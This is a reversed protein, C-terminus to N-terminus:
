LGWPEEPTPPREAAAAEMEEPPRRPPPHPARRPGRWGGEGQAAEAAQGEGQQPAGVRAGEGSGPEKAARPQRTGEGRGKEVGYVSLYADTLVAPRIPPQAIRQNPPRSGWDNQMKTLMRRFYDHLERKRIDQAAWRRQLFRSWVRNLLGPPYQRWLANRIVTAVAEKFGAMHSCVEQAFVLRGYIVGGLQARPTTSSWEPYRTIHHPYEAERDYVSTVIKGERRTVRVGIFTVDDDKSSTQRYEMGYEKEPPPDRGALFMDDIFRLAMGKQPSAVSHRREVTYCALNALQPAQSLGMPMGQKQRRVLSGNVTYCHSISYRLFAEVQLMTWGDEWCWGETTLCPPGEEEPMRGAEYEQAERVAAMVNRVLVEQDFATYMTTFDVTRM